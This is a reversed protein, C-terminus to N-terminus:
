WKNVKRLRYKIRLRHNKSFLIQMDMRGFRGLMGKSIMKSSVFSEIPNEPLSYLNEWKKLDDHDFQHSTLVEADVSERVNEWMAM